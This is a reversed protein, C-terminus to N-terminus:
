APNKRREINSNKYYNAKDIYMQEDAIKSLDDLSLLKTQDFAYGISVTYITDKMKEKIKDRMNVLDDKTGNILLISFEDGGLRYCYSNKVSCEEIIKSIEIIANDGALHGEHDNVAKLGNMDINLIGNINKGLKKRDYYYSKRDFMGTLADRRAQDVYLFLYYFLCSIAITVNLINYALSLSELTVALITFFSCVFLVISDTKRKGNLKQLVNFLFYVIYIGGIIHSTFNLYGRNHILMTGEENYTYYFVLNRLPEVNVFLALIYVVVVIGLPIYFIWQYKVKKAILQIFMYLCLPRVIYGITTFLTAAFINPSKEVFYREFFVDLSLLLCIGIIIITYINERSHGRVNYIVTFIMTVVVILLAFNSTVFELFM